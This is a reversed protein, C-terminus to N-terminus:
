LTVLFECIHVHVTEDLRGMLTLLPKYRNYTTNIMQTQLSRLIVTQLNSGLKNSMKGARAGSKLLM